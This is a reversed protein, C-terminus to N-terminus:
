RIRGQLYVDLLMMANNKQLNESQLTLRQRFVTVHHCKGVSDEIGRRLPTVAHLNYCCKPNVHLTHKTLKAYLNVLPQM